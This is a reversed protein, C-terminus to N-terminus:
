AENPSSKYSSGGSSNIKDVREFIAYKCEYTQRILRYFVMDCYDWEFHLGSPLLKRGAANYSRLLRTAGM